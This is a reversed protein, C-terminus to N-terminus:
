VQTKKRRMMAAQMVAEVIPMYGTCRCLVGSLADKIQDVSPNPNRELLAKANLIMAPTCYGCQQAFNTAFAQQIADLNMLEKGKLGELTEIKSGEVKWTPMLCSYVPRGDLLVSCVGCGGFDCGQKVSMTGLSDRLTDFLTDAAMCEINRSEGNLIFRVKIRTENLM